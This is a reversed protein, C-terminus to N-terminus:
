AKSAERKGQGAFRDKLEEYAAQAGPVNAKAASQINRYVVLGDTYAEGGTQMMTSEVDTALQQLPRLISGLDNTARIDEQLAQFDVFSPVLSPSAAGYEEIKKMFGLSRDGMKILTQRQEPTLPYLYPTLEQQLVALAEDIKKKSAAPITVSIRNQM